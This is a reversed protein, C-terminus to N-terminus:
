KPNSLAVFIAYWQNDHFFGKVAAHMGVKMDSFKAEGVGHLRFVTKPLVFFERLVPTTEGKKPKMELVFSNTKIEKVIGIGIIRGPPNALIHVKLADVKKGVNDWTGMIGVNVGLLDTPIGPLKEGAKYFEANSYNVKITAGANVRRALIKLFPEVLVVDMLKETAQVRLVVGKFALRINVKDSLGPPTDPRGKGNNGALVMGPLAAILGAVLLFVLIKKM